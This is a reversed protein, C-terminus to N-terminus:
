YFSGSPGHLLNGWLRPFIRSIVEFVSQNETAPLIYVDVRSRYNDKDVSEDKNAMADVQRWLHGTGWVEIMHGSSEQKSLFTTATDATSM